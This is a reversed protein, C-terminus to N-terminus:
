GRRESNLLVIKFLYDSCGNGKSGSKNITEEEERGSGKEGKM